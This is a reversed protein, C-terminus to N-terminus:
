PCLSSTRAVPNCIMKVTSFFTYSSASVKVDPMHVKYVPVRNPYDGSGDVVLRTNQMNLSVLPARLWLEASLLQSFDDGPEIHRTDHSLLIALLVPDELQVDEHFRILYRVPADTAAWSWSPARYYKSQLVPKTKPRAHWQVYWLLAEPLEFEFFGAFYPSGNFISQMHQAIGAFAAFKYEANTLKCLSYSEMLDAWVSFAIQTRSALGRVRASRPPQFLVGRLRRPLCSVISVGAM